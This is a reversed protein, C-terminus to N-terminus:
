MSGSHDRSTQFKPGFLGTLPRLRTTV